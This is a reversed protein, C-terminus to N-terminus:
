LVTNENLTKTQDTQYKIIIYLRDVSIPNALLVIEFGLFFSLFSPRGRDRNPRQDTSVLDLNVVRSMM